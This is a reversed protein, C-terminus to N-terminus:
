MRAAAAIAQLVGELDRDVQQNTFRLVRLGLSAILESREEDAARQSLHIPGDVEVVPLAEASYFDVVFRGLVHQRRFRLGRLRRGRLAEWLVREAATPRLRM